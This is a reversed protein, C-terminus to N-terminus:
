PKCVGLADNHPEHSHWANTNLTVNKFRTPLGPPAHCAVVEREYDGDDAERMWVQFALVETGGGIAAGRVLVRRGLPLEEVTRHAIGEHIVSAGPRVLVSRSGIVFRSDSTPSVLIANEVQGEFEVAAAGLGRREERTLVLEDAFRRLEIAVEQDNAIGGLTIRPLEDTRQLVMFSQTGPPVGRLTFTGDEAVAARVTTDSVLVLTVPDTPAGPEALVRGSVITTRPAPIPQTSLDAGGGGGCAAALLLASAAAWPGLAASRDIAKM